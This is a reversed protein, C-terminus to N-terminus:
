VMITSPYPEQRASFDGSPRAGARGNKPEGSTRGGFRIKPEDPSEGEWNVIKKPESPPHPERRVSFNKPESRM